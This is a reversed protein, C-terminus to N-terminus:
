KKEVTWDEIELFDEIRKFDSLKTGDAAKDELAGSGVLQGLNYAVQVVRKQTPECEIPIRIAQRLFHRCAKNPMDGLITEVVEESSTELVLDWINKLGQTDWELGSSEPNDSLNKSLEQWVELGNEDLCGGAKMQVDKGAQYAQEWIATTIEANTTSRM